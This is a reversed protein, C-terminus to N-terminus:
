QVAFHIGTVLDKPAVMTPDSDYTEFPHIGKKLKIKKRQHMSYMTSWANSLHQYAGIHNLTYIKTAPITGTVFNYPVSDPLEKVPVGSTYEAKNKATDFKHYISFPPQGTKLAEHNQIYSHLEELDSQMRPGMDDLHCTTRIGIYSCGPFESEGKFDLRSHVTGLEVYEKLMNLGRDYDMGILTTMSKKMFFLFFPLSSDMLWTTKTKGELGELEFRVKATSKWPKLFTLDYDISQNQAEQLVTMEGDGTMEGTWTYFKGDKRVNVEAKPDMILWPSWAQWHHFDSVTEYVQKIPADITISKKINLPPM